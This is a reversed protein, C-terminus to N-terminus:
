AVSGRLFGRFGPEPRALLSRLGSGGCLRRTVQAGVAQPRGATDGFPYVPPRAIVIHAGYSLGSLPWSQPGSPAMGRLRLMVPGLCCTAPDHVAARTLSVPEFLPFWASFAAMLFKHDCRCRRRYVSFGVGYYLAERARKLGCCSRCSPSTPPSAGPRVTAANFHYVTTRTEAEM